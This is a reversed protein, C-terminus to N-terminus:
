TLVQAITSPGFWEGINKGYKVGSQAIKHVSYPSSPTDLFWRVIQYYQPPYSENKKMKWDVFLNSILKTKRLWLVFIGKGLFHLILAQALMM